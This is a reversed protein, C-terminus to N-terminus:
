SLSISFILFNEIHLFAKNYLVITNLKEKDDNLINWQTIIENNWVLERTQHTNYGMFGSFLFFM